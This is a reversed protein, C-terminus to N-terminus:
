SILEFFIRPHSKTYFIKNVQLLNSFLTLNSAQGYLALLELIDELHLASSVTISCRIMFKFWIINKYTRVWINLVDAFM